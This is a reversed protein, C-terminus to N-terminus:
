PARTAEPAAPRGVWSPTTRIRTTSQRRYGKGFSYIQKGGAGGERIRLNFRGGGWTARWLYTKSTSFYRRVREGGVTDIQDNSTIMRWAIAGAPGRRAERDTFRRDNTPSTEAPEAKADHVHDEDQRRRHEHRPEHGADLIRRRDRTQQLHYEIFAAWNEMKAGVGPIFTM